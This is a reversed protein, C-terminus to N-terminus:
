GEYVVNLQGFLKTTQHRRKWYLATVIEHVNQDFVDVVRVPWVKDSHQRMVRGVLQEIDSCPLAIVLGDLEAVDFGEGVLQATAVICRRQQESVCARKQDCIGNNTMTTEGTCRSKYNFDANREATKKKDDLSGDANKNEDLYQDKKGLLAHNVDNVRDGDLARKKASRPKTCTSKARSGGLLLEATIGHKMKLDTALLTAHNRLLTLVLVARKEKTVMGAIENVLLTNRLSCSSLQQRWFVLPFNEYRRPMPKNNTRLPARLTQVIYGGPPTKGLRVLDERTISFAM